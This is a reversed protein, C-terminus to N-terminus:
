LYALHFHFISDRVHRLAEMWESSATHALGGHVGSSCQRTRRLASSRRSEAESPVAAMGDRRGDLHDQQGASSRKRQMADIEDINAVDWFRDNVSLALM